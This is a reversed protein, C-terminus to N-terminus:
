RVPNGGRHRSYVLDVPATADAPGTSGTVASVNPIITPTDIRGPM